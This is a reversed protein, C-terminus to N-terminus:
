YLESASGLPPCFPTETDKTEGPSGESLRSSGKQDATYDYIFQQLRRRQELSLDSFRLGCRRVSLLRAPDEELPIDYAVTCWITGLPLISGRGGIIEVRVRENEVHEVWVSAYSIGLGGSSMDLVEGVSDYLDDRGLFAMTVGGGPSVRKEKRLDNRIGNDSAAQENVSV